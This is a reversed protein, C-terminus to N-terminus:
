WERDLMYQENEWQKRENDNKFEPLEEVLYKEEMFRSKHRM